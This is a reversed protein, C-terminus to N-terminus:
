KRIFAWTSTGGSQRIGGRPNPLEEINSKVVMQQVKLHIVNIGSVFTFFLEHTGGM